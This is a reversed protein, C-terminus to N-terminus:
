ASGIVTKGMNQENLDGGKLCKKIFRYLILSRMLICYDADYPSEPRSEGQIKSIAEKVVPVNIYESIDPDNSLQQLEQIFSNWAPVMRHIGDAGQIGRIRQNLRVHDPLLSETSRRILARDMGNQVYQEEPLSLCFKIV